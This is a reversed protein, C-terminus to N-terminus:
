HTRLHYSFKDVRLVLFTETERIGEVQYLKKSIFDMLHDMDELVVEIFVDFSGTSVALYTVEDFNKLRETVQDILGPQVRVGILAKIQFGLKYSDPVALIRLVGSELLQVTRYRVTGESVGIAAAIETYPKRGDQQLHEIIKRDVDDLNASKM